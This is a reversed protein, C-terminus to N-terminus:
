YYSIRSSNYSINCDKKNIWTKILFKWTVFFWMSYVSFFIYHILSTPASCAYRSSNECTTSYKSSWLICASWLRYSKLGMECRDCLKAVHSLRPRTNSHQSSIEYGSAFLGDLIITTEFYICFWYWTQFKFNNVSKDDFYFNLIKSWQIYYNSYKEL